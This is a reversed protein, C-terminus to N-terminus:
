EKKEGPSFLYINIPRAMPIPLYQYAQGGKGRGGKKHTPLYQCVASEARYKKKQTDINKVGVVKM